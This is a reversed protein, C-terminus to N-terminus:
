QTPRTLGFKEIRYRIQDRNMGLLVAARTQNGACRDLAQVVFSREVQELDLGDPPLEFGNRAGSHITLAPFDAPQLWQCQALLVAREVANRLERINGPWGYTHLAKLAASSAGRVNKRFERNFSDIYFTILAPVDEVHARLPPLPISLVHLRYFLDSRFRGARVEEELSRNTAAIVRVDVHIDLEGGVRTFTKEELFRLLRAQLAPAIGGIEDLFVTGGEAVELLGRKREVGDTLAVREDGFLESVLTEPSLACTVNM